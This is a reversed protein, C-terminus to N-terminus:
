LTHILNYLRVVTSIAQEVTYPNQPAFEVDSIGTMIGYENAWTVFFQAWPSIYPTDWYTLNTEIGVWMYREAVKCLLTAAEERTIIGHPDFYMEERGNVIGLAHLINVSNDVGDCDVFYNKLYAGGTDFMYAELSVYNEKVAIMNGLLICFQERTINESYKDTFEYPLLSKAAAEKAATQAWPAQPMKLFDHGTNRYIQADNIKEDSDKYTSDLYLIQETDSDSLKYCVYNGSGYLGIQVGSNIYYSKVGDATYLNVAIGRFPTPNIRREVTMNMATDYFKKIESHELKVYKGDAIDSVTIGTIEDVDFIGMADSLTMSEPLNVVNYARAGLPMMLM